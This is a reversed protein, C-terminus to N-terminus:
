RLLVVVSRPQVRYRRIAVVPERGAELIDDPSALATDVARRWQGERGEYIGFDLAESHANIMVYLDTPDSPIGRLYFALARSQQSLDPQEAVGYWRISDGWFQSRCLTPHSKRFIILQRVFRFLEQHQDRRRWDLWSTENDQNYPNNNGAQTQLFEDGMRFMPTGASLMLLSFFNKAQRKRLQLVEGPVGEDGEWGCNWSHDHIGDTNNHGNAWNRRQNYSVLDYLTFGDHSTVYHISLFPRMAHMQDDPFLDSSGYIRTMLEPVMGADGRVFKQVCTQYAGNWQMWEIGPFKRGLQYADLDWPEAVMRLNALLPDAGIQGFIPPDNPHISGDSTRTFISALDFRFGDVHMESTWYRLSDVILQRAARNVTHLTNGCGSYNAFPSSSDGSLIYYTSADIGKLSYVPGNQGGECTHNYVVDLIVEIGAAHLQRVMERFEAQADCVGPATTYREDPSFFNLPMYGWYNGEGPDLQFVPMLEVATIGLERLYPIKEIVGAFTGRMESAVGSSPDATFGRVHMEYIILDHSHIPVRDQQWDFKCTTRPLLGLPARGLNSGPVCAAQRDFDPPFHVDRAYPDLLLKERDFHHIAFGKGPPPGAVRYGYFDSGALEHAAIRCHWIPGSKHKHFDLRKALTPQRYDERSFCLLEVDTAHKSYLAFNFAEEGALWTVGLPWPAGEQRHWNNDIRWHQVFASEPSAIHKQM